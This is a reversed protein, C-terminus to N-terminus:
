LEVSKRASIRFNNRFRIVTSVTSNTSSVTLAKECFYLNKAVSDQVSFVSFVQGRIGGIKTHIRPIRPLLIETSETHRKGHCKWHRQNRSQRELCNTACFDGSIERVLCTKLGSRLFRRALGM